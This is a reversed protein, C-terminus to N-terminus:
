KLKKVYEAVAKAKVEDINVILTNHVKKGGFGDEMIFKALKEATLSAKNIPPIKASAM